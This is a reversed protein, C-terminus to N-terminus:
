LMKAWRRLLKDKHKRRNTWDAMDEYQRWLLAKFEPFVIGPDASNVAAAMADTVGGQRSPSQMVVGAKEVAMQLISAATYPSMELVALFLAEAIRQDQIVDCKLPEWHHILHFRIAAERNLREVSQKDYSIKARRLHQVSIGFKTTRHMEDKIHIGGDLSPALLRGIAKIFDAM